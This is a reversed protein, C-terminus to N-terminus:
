LDKESTIINMSRFTGSCGVSTFSVSLPRCTVPPPPIVPPKVDEKVNDLTIDTVDPKPVQGKKGFGSVVNGIVLLAVVSGMVVLSKVIRKNYTKRLEYAGYDKNRGEFIIDLIDAEQIKNPEM